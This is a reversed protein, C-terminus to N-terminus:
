IPEAIPPRRPTYPRKATRAEGALSREAHSALYHVRGDSTVVDAGIRQAIMIADKLSLYRVWKARRPTFRSHSWCRLRGTQNLSQRLLYQDNPIATTLPM